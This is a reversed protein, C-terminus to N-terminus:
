EDDLYVKLWPLASGGKKWAVVVDMREGPYLVGVAERAEAQVGYGGDVQMVQMTAGDMKMTFGAISGTNIVRLRTRTRASRFLPTMSSLRIQDCVVPRAPVAMSCNYRGKGNVLLSDPVPENGMSGYDQYWALVEAHERHFWDGIMVLADANTEALDPGPAHVVFGGYLGDTRQTTMHSHWWFTGHEDDGIGFDYVFDGGAPIPCQTFGVAGDM